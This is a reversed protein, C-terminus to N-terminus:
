ACYYLGPGLEDRRVRQVTTSDGRRGGRQLSTKLLRLSDRGACDNAASKQNLKVKRSSNLRVPVGRSKDHCAGKVGGRRETRVFRKWVLEAEETRAKIAMWANLTWFYARERGGTIGRTKGNAM